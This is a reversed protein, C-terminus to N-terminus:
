NDGVGTLVLVAGDALYAHVEWGPAAMAQDLSPSGRWPGAPVEPAVQTVLTPPRDVPETGLVSLRQADAASLTVVADIWYTSPGPAGTGTTGGAWAVADPSGLGPFRKLLPGADRRLTGDNNKTAKGLNAM